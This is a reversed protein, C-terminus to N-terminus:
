PATLGSRSVTSVTNEMNYRMIAAVHERMALAEGHAVISQMDKLCFEVSSKRESRMHAHLPTSGDRGGGPFHCKVGLRLVVCPRYFILQCRLADIRVNMYTSKEIKSPM